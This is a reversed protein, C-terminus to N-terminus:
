DIKYGVGRINKILNGASGFKKRLNRIHVDITRDIVIRGDGWLKDLIDARSLVFGKNLSLIKLINFETLTLNLLQKGVFVQHRKPDLTVLNNIIIKKSEIKSSNRRLVAKVRAILERTSFPKTIYDDAGLELGLVKDFEEDKATVMIIPINQYESNNKLNKCIEMGDSGPLMLDLLILDPLKKTLFDFLDKPNTFEYSFYGAKKLHLSILKLIDEEDDLIAIIKKM